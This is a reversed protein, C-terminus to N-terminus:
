RIRGPVLTGNEMHSPEYVGTGRDHTMGLWILMLIVMAVGAITLWGGKGEWSAKSMVPKRRTVLWVAFTVFPAVFFLLAELAVRTM